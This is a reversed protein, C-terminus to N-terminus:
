RTNVWLQRRIECSLSWAKLLLSLAVLNSRVGFHHIVAEAQFQAWFCGLGLVSALVAEARFGSCPSGWGSFWLLSEEAQFGVSPSRSRPESPMSDSYSGMNSCESTIIYIQINM